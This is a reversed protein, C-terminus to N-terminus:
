PSIDLLTDDISSKTVVVLKGLNAINPEISDTTDLVKNNENTDEEVNTLNQKSERKSEVTSNAVM